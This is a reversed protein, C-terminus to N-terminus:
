RVCEAGRVILMQDTMLGIDTVVHIENGPDWKFAVVADEVGEVLGHAARFAMSIAITLHREIKSRPMGQFPEAAHEGWALVMEQLKEDAMSLSGGRGFFILKM